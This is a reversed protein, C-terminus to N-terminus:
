RTFTGTKWGPSASNPDSLGCTGPVVYAALSRAEAVESHEDLARDAAVSAAKPQQVIPPEAIRGGAGLVTPVPRNPAPCGPAETAQAPVSGFITLTSM